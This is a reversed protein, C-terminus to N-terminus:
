FIYVRIIIIQLYSFKNTTSFGFNIKLSFFVYNQDASNWILLKPAAVRQSYEFSGKLQLVYRSYKSIFFLCCKFPEILRLIELNKKNEKGGRKCM